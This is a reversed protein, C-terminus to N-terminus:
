TRGLGNQRALLERDAAALVQDADDGGGFPIMGWAIETVAEEIGRDRLAALIQANLNGVKEEAPKGETLTLVAGFDAGGLSSVVDSARLAKSLTEVVTTLVRDAASRGHTLRTREIGCLSFVVLTSTTRTQDARNIIRAIERVFARRNTAPLVPDRDAQQQFHIIRDRELELEARTRDFEGIIITLAEQVHPTMESTPVGMIQAVDQVQPPPRPQRRYPADRGGDGLGDNDRTPPRNRKGTAKGQDVGATRTVDVM